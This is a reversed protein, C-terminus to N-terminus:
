HFYPMKCLICSVHLYKISEESPAINEADVSSFKNMILFFDDCQETINSYDYRIDILKVEATVKKKNPLFKM